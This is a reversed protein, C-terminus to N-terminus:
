TMNITKVKIKSLDMTGLGRDQAIKLYEMQNPDVDLLTIAYADAAVRDTAAICEKKTVVDALNGGSPGNRLLVRYADILTLTPKVAMNIDVIKTMFNRHIAGRDGGLIGMMNKFGLTVRSISHHKVIPMNILVDADLADKYFPWSQIMEGGPIDVDKFRSDVIHRVEAGAGKAAEEIGSRRYCRRAQNCTRDLVRVWDAGANTCLKVMEAVAEPNTNAAQEPVRDWGINPKILVKQGKKVFREIGGINEVARRVMEAPSGNKVIVMDPIENQAFLSATGIGAAGAVTTRIFNRRNINM